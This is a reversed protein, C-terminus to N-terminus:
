VVDKPTLKETKAKVSVRVKLEEFIKLASKLTQHEHYTIEGDGQVQFVPAKDCAAICKVEEVTFIGDPTTEGPQINLADCVQHLFTEAGCLACPLDTCVQIFYRGGEEHFLTYFGLVSTVDTVSIGTLAAIDAVAQRSVKGDERQALYLLPMVASQKFEPPYKALIREVEKPYKRQLEIM